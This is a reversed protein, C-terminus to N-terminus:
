MKGDESTEESIIDSVKLEGTKDVTMVRVPGGIQGLVIVDTGDKDTVGMKDLEKEVTYMRPTIVRKVVMWNKVPGWIFRKVLTDIVLPIWVGKYVGLIICAILVMDPAYIVLSPKDENNMVDTHHYASMLLSLVSLTGLIVIIYINYV